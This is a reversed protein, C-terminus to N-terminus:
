AFKKTKYFLLKILFSFNWINALAAVLATRYFFTNKSIECFECSFVQVLTEKKIINCAGGAVKNFFLSQCLHKGTFKAFNRLVGKECFVELVSSRYKVDCVRCSIIVVCINSLIELLLPLRVIFNTENISSLMLFIKRSFWVCFFVWDWIRIRQYFILTWCSASWKSKGIM